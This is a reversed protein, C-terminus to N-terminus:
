RWCVVVLFFNLFHRQSLSHCSPPFGAHFKYISGIRVSGFRVSRDPGSRVSGISGSRVPGFRVSGFRDPSSRGSGYRVSGFRDSGFRESVFRDLFTIYFLFFYFFLFLFLFIFFIFYFLLYHFDFELILDFELLITSIRNYCKVERLYIYQSCSIYYFWRPTSIFSKTPICALLPTYIPSGRHQNFFM